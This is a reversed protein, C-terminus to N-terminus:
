KIEILNCKRFSTLKSIYHVFINLTNLVTGPVYEEIHTAIIILILENLLEM